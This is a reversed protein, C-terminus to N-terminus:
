IFTKIVLLNFYKRDLKDQTNAKKGYNYGDQHILRKGVFKHPNRSAVSLKKGKTNEVFVKRASQYKSSLIVQKFM